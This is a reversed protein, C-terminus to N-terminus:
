ELVERWVEPVADFAALYTQELAVSIYEEPTLFVSLDPLKDGVAAPNVFAEAGLGALYSACTLPKTSDFRFTDGADDGWIVPHIGEPDRPSPPFLDVLSLHVGASLLDQAKQVFMKLGSKSDKNGPSVIEMVAVVRDESVHRITVSKKKAAYWKPPDTIRYRAKPPDKELTLTHPAKRPSSKSKREPSHPTEKAFPRQLTLVDPGMGGAIQEALAYYSTGLLSHNVARSIVSIWEHHFHHFIGAPVLTWDHIPVARDESRASPDKAINYDPPDLIADPSPKPKEVREM